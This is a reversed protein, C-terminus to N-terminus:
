FPLTSDIPIKRMSEEFEIQAKLEEVAEEYSVGVDIPFGQSSLIPEHLEVIKAPMGPTFQLTYKKEM